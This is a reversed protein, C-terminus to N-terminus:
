RTVEPSVTVAGELLREVASGAVIELDYVGRTWSLAATETASLSLILTGTLATITIRGNVTTLELLVSADAAARRIQMRATYGTLNRPTGDDTITLTRTWTAGQEITVDFIASM